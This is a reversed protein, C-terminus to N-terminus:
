KVLYLGRESFSFSFRLYDSNAKETSIFDGQRLPNKKANGGFGLLKSLPLVSVFRNVSKWFIFHLFFRDVCQSKFSM